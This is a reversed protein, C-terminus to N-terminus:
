AIYSSSDYFREKMDVNLLNAIKDFTEVNKALVVKLRNIRNMEVSKVQYKM